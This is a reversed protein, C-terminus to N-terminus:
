MTYNGFNSIFDPADPANAQVNVSTLQGSGFVTTANRIIGYINIVDGNELSNPYTGQVNITGNTGIVTNSIFEFRPVSNPNTPNARTIDLSVISDSTLLSTDPVTIGINFTTDGVKPTLSITFFQQTGSIDITKVTWSSTLKTAPDYTQAAASFARGVKTLSLSDANTLNLPFTTINNYKITWSDPDPTQEVGAYFAFNYQLSPDPNNISFSLTMPVLNEKNGWILFLVLLAILVLIIFLMWM